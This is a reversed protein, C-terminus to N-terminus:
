AALGTPPHIAYAHVFLRFRKAKARQPEPSAMPKASTSARDQFTAARIGKQGSCLLAVRSPWFVISSAPSCAPYGIARPTGVRDFATLQNDVVAYRDGDPRAVVPSDLVDGFRRLQLVNPLMAGVFVADSSTLLLRDQGFWARIDLPDLRYPAAPSRDVLYRYWTLGLHIYLYDGSVRASLNHTPDNSFTESYLQPDPAYDYSHLIKGSVIDITTVTIPVYDDPDFWTTNLYVTGHGFGLPEPQADAIWLKRGSRIDYAYTVDVSKGSSDDFPQMVVAGSVYAPGEMALAGGGSSWIPKATNPDDATFADDPGRESYLTGGAYSSVAADPVSASERGDRASLGVLRRSREGIAEVYIVNPTVATRYDPDSTAYEPATKWMLRGNALDVALLRGKVAFYAVSGNNGLLSAGNIEAPLRVTSLANRSRGYSHLPSGTATPLPRSREGSVAAISRPSALSTSAQAAARSACGCLATGAIFIPWILSIAPWLRRM